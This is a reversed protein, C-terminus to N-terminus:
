SGEQTVGVIIGGQISLTANGVTVDGTFGKRGESCYTRAEIQTTSAFGMGLALREGQRYGDLVELVICERPNKADITICGESYNPLTGAIMRGIAMADMANLRGDMNVDYLRIEEDTLTATGFYYAEIKSLDEQTFGSFDRRYIASLSHDSMTFGGITGQEGIIIIGKLVGALIASAKIALRGNEDLYIADDLGALTLRNLLEQQNLKENEKDTYQKTRQISRAVARQTPGQYESSKAQGPAAIGTIIGGDYDHTVSMVPVSVIQGTTDELRIIDGPDILPNGLFSLEPVPRYSFGEWQQWLSNLIPQTMWISELNIGQEAALDGVFMTLEAIENYCKLWGVTFGYAAKELGDEYYTDATVSVDTAGYHCIRLVGRRDVHAFGGYLAAIFGAIQRETFGEPSIGLSVPELGALDVEVGRRTCLAELFATSPVGEESDFAFGELPEYEVDLKSGLADQATVTLYEEDGTPDDAFYKGMPIWEIGAALEIGLEIFLERGAIPCSIEGGDLSLEVSGSVACGLMFAETSANAGGRFAIERVAKGQITDVGDLTIRAVYPLRDMAAAFEKSVTQM